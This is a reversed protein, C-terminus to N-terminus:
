CHFAISHIVFIKDIQFIKKRNIKLMTMTMLHCSKM